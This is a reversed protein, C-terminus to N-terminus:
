PLAPQPIEVTAQDPRLKGRTDSAQGLSKRALSEAEPQFLVREVRFRRTGGPTECEFEDGEGYGLMAIGIPALVSLKGESSNAESPLVLKYIVSEDNDVERLCVRSHLTIIERPIEHSEVVNARDLERELLALWRQSRGDTLAMGETIATIKILDERTIHIQTKMFEKVEKINNKAALKGDRLRDCANLRIRCRRWTRGM